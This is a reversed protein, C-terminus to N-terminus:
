HYPPSIRWILRAKRIFHNVTRMIRSCAPVKAVYKYVTLAYRIVCAYSRPAYGESRTTFISLELGLSLNIKLVNGASRVSHAQTGRVNITGSVM